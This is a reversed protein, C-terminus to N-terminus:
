AVKVSAIPQQLMEFIDVAVQGKPSSYRVAKGQYPGSGIQGAFGLARNKSKRTRRLHIPRQGMGLVRHMDHQTIALPTENKGVISLVFRFRLVSNLDIPTPYGNFGVFLYGRMLPRAHLTKRKRDRSVRAIHHILPLFTAVGEDRLIQECTIERGTAVQIAIWVVAPTGCDFDTTSLYTM